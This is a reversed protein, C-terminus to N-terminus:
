KFLKEMEDFCELTDLLTEYFYISLDQVNFDGTYKELVERDEKSYLVYSWDGYNSKTKYDEQVEKVNCHFRDALARLDDREINITLVNKGELKAIMSYSIDVLSENSVTIPNKLMILEYKGVKYCEEKMVGYEESPISLWDVSEIPKINELNLFM